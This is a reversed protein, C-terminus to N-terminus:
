GFKCDQFDYDILEFEQLKTYIDSEEITGDLPRFTLNTIDFANSGTIQGSNDTIVKTYRLMMPFYDNYDSYYYNVNQGQKSGTKIQFYNIQQIQTGDKWGLNEYSIFWSESSRTKGFRLKTPILEKAKEECDYHQMDEQKEPLENPVGVVSNSESTQKTPEDRNIDDLTIFYKSGESIVGVMNQNRNYTKISYDIDSISQNSIIIKPGVQSLINENVEGELILIDSQIDKDKLFEFCGKKCDDLFLFSANKYDLRFIVRSPTVFSKFVLSDDIKIDRDSTIESNGRSKFVYDINNEEKSQQIFDESFLPYTNDILIKKHQPTFILYGGSLNNYLTLTVVTLNTLGEKEEEDNDCIKNNNSDVCCDGKKYEIYPSKCLPEETVKPAEALSTNDTPTAEQTELQSCGLLLISIISLILLWKIDYKHIKM